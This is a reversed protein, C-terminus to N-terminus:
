ILSEITIALLFTVNASGGKHQMFGELTATNGWTHPLLQLLRHIYSLIVLPEMTVLSSKFETGQLSEESKM